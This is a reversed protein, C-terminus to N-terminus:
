YQAYRVGAPGFWQLCDEDTVYGRVPNKVRLEPASWTAARLIAGDERRVFGYVSRSNGFSSKDSSILKWYKRGKQVELRPVTLNQYNKNFHETLLNQLKPVLMEFAHEIELESPGLDIESM